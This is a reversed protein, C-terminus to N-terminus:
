INRESIKIDVIHTNADFRGIIADVICVKADIVGIHTDRV